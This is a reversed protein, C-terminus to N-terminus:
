DGEGRQERDELMEKAAEESTKMKKSRSGSQTEKSLKQKGNLQMEIATFAIRGEAFTAARIPFAGGNAGGIRIGCDFGMKAQWPRIYATNNEAARIEAMLREMTARIDTAPSM